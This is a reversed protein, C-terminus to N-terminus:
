KKGGKDKAKWPRHSDKLAPNHFRNIMKEKKEKSEQHEAKRV